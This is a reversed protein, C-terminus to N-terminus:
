GGDPKPHGPVSDGGLNLDRSSVDVDGSDDPGGTGPLVDVLTGDIADDKLAESDAISENQKVETDGESAPDNADERERVGHPDSM